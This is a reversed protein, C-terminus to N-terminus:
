MNEKALVELVFNLLLPMPADKEIEWRLPLAKLEESNFINNVPNKWM